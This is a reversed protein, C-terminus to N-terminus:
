DSLLVPLSDALLFGKRTPLLRSGCIRVVGADQLHKLVASGNSGGAVSRLDIGDKTRMGLYIEELRVQEPSLTESEEVPPEGNALSRCYDEVSRVNWWRVNPRFSHAGPGLGLYPVHRWYKSNHRSIHTAGRAFNSIEYHLYGRAELTESTALFFEREEEEGLPRIGGKARLAGFPTGEEVTMQYCSLHEPMFQLIRDLNELWGSLSQGEIGYILDVSMSSFESGRVLELARVTQRADHRRGLFRLDDENLSQVGLSIRNFGLDLLLAIKQPDIDDPNAEITIEAEGSLRLGDRLGEMLMTLQRDDLVSPTGGGLYLSDFCDFLGGRVRAEVRLADLWGAAWSLDTVSYFDCYPCKRLCFPVHVYLGPKESPNM